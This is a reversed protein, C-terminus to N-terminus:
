SVVHITPKNHGGQAPITVEVNSKKLPDTSSRDDTKLARKKTFLFFAKHKLENISFSNTNVLGFLPGVGV